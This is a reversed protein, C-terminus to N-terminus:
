DGGLRGYILERYSRERELDGLAFYVDSLKLYLSQTGPQAELAREYQRLADEVEGAWFAADGQREIWPGTRAQLREARTESREAYTRAEVLRGQWLLVYYRHEALLANRVLDRWREPFARELELALEHSLEGSWLRRLLAHETPEEDAVLELTEEVWEFDGAMLGLQAAVTPFRPDHRWDPYIALWLEDAEEWRGERALAVVRAMPYLKAEPVAQAAREFYDSACLDSRCRTTARCGRNWFSMGELRRGLDSDLKETPVASRDNRREALAWYSEMLDAALLRRLSGDDFGFDEPKLAPLCSPDAAAQQRYHDWLDVFLVRRGPAVFPAQEVVEDAGVFIDDVYFRVESTDFGPPDGIFSFKFVRSGELEVANVQDSLSVLPARHGEERVALDYLGSDIRYIVEFEYWTFARVEALPQMAGATYHVFEGDRTGLWFAIGDRALVFHSAGALAVNLAEEPEATMLAFRFYVTGTDLQPFFGQLEAFDGDGAVDRIEVSREGSHRYVSNLGVSGRSDQFVMVTYPGTEVASGDFDYAVLGHPAQAVLVSTWSSGLLVLVAWWPRRRAARSELGERM